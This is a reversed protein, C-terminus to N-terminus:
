PWNFEHEVTIDKEGDKMSFIINCRRIAKSVFQDLKLSKWKPHVSWLRSYVMAPRTLSSVVRLVADVVADEVFCDAGLGLYTLSGRHPELAELMPVTLFDSPTGAMHTISFNKLPKKLQRLVDSTFSVHEGLESSPVSFYERVGFEPFRELKIEQLSPLSNLISLTQTPGSMSYGSWTLHRLHLHGRLYDLHILDSLISLNQLSPCSATVMHLFVEQDRQQGKNSHLHETLIVCDLRLSLRLRELNPVFTFAERALLKKSDRNSPRLSEQSCVLHVFAVHRLLDPDGAASWALFDELNFSYQCGEKLMIPLTESRIRRSALTLAQYTESYFGLLKNFIISYIQRRLEPPLDLLGIHKTSMTPSIDTALIRSHHYWTYSSANVITAELHHVLVSLFSLRVIPYLYEIM